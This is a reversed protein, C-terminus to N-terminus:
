MQIKDVPCIMKGIFFSSAGAALSTLLFLPAFGTFGILSGIIIPFLALSINFTGFIGTYLARNEENSIEMLVADSTVKQAGLYFGTFLFVPVFGGLPLFRSAALAVPPMIFGLLSWVKLMGKFSKRSVIRRWLINSLIMGAFQILILNGVMTNDLRYTDRALAMYFPLLVTGLGLLNSAAIYRALTPDSKLYSPILRIIEGASLNQRRAPHTMESINLFGISALLLAAASLGFLLPYSQELRGMILRTLLASVLMGSSMVTQRRLVFLKRKEGPFSKGVLDMYSIGAFAGGLTFLLLTLYIGGLLPELAWSGSRLLFLALLSLSLVRLYIGILLYPKKRPRTHLFGAFLLQGALPVGVMIGTLIGVHFKSGGMGLIMAPFVTNIDTFTVTVALLVAHWLFAAM